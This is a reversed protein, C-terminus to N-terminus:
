IATLSETDLINQTPIIPIGEWSEPLPAEHGTDSTATRSRQLQGRSRRTMYIANPPLHAPFLEYAQSLLSDTLGKGSDATLKKIRVVSDPRLIQLGITAGCSMHYADYANTGGTDLKDRVDMDSLAFDGGQGLVWSIDQVGWRVMYVSSGTSATTGTADITYTSTVAQLLGDFGKEDGYTSNTGYYFCKAAQIMCSAMQGAMEIAMLASAGDESADAMRKDIYAKADLFFTEVLYESYTSKTNAAGENAKRFATTPLGSRLVTKYNLGKITRALAIGPLTKETGGYMVKGSIEPTGKIAEEVIGVVGDRGKLKAIDLLTLNAPM